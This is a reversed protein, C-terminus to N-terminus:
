LGVGGVDTMGLGGSCISGEERLREGGGMDRM